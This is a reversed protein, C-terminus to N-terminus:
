FFKGAKKRIDEFCSHIASRYTGERRAIEAFSLGDMRMELRRRQTSTLGNLFEEVRQQSLEDSNIKDPSSHKDEFAEGEFDFCDLSVCHYRIKRNYNAEKRRSATIFAGLEEDVEVESTTGDAFKYNIKM